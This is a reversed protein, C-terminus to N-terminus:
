SRVPEGAIQDIAGDDREHYAYSMHQRDPFGLLVRSGDPLIYLFIHIEEGIEEDAIGLWAQVDAFVAGKRLGRFAPLSRRFDMRPGKDLSVAIFPLDFHQVIATMDDWPGFGHGALILAKDEDLQVVLRMRVSDRRGAAEGQLNFSWASYPGFQLAEQNTNTAEAPMLGPGRAVTVEWTRDAAGLWRYHVTQRFSPPDTSSIVPMAFSREYGSLDPFAGYWGALPTEGLHAATHWPPMLLVSCGALAGITCIWARQRLPEETDRGATSWPAYV